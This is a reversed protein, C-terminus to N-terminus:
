GEVARQYKLVPSIGSGVFLPNQMTRNQLQHDCFLGLLLSPTSVLSGSRSPFPVADAVRRIPVRGERTRVDRLERGVGEGAM